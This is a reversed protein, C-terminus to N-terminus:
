LVCWLAVTRARNAARLKPASATIHLRALIGFLSPGPAPANASRQQSFKQRAGRSWAQRWRYGHACM